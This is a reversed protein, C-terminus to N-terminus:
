NAMYLLAKVDVRRGVIGFTAYPCVLYINEVASNVEKPNTQSSYQRFVYDGAVLRVVRRIPEQNLENYNTLELM